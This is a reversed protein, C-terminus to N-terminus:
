YKRFDGQKKGTTGSPVILLAASPSLDLDRLTSQMDTERFERRPFTVCVSYPRLYNWKFLLDFLYIQLNIQQM